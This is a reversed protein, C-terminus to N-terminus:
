RSIQATLNLIEADGLLDLRERRPAPLLPVPGGPLPGRRQLVQARTRCWPSCFERAKLGSDPCGQTCVKCHGPDAVPAPRQLLRRARDEEEAGQPVEDSTCGRILEGFAARFNTLDRRCAGILELYEEVPWSAFTGSRTLYLGVAAGELRSLGPPGEHELVM